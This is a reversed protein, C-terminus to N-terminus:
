PWGGYVFVLTALALMVYNSGTFNWTFGFWSQLLPSLLLIPLTLASSVFFRRKFNEAMKKHNTHKM